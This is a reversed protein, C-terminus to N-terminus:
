FPVEEDSDPVGYGSASYGSGGAGGEADRKSGLLELRDVNIVPKNREEGTTRDTWRDLKFSGTIGLLSGKRVYDAAVQAQKGWIELPFWDPKDDRSRRNVALTFKAVMSGKEFYNAEPDRGARGVLTVRNTGPLNVPASVADFKEVQFELPHGKEIRFRGSLIWYSGSRINAAARDAAAGWVTAAIDMPPDEHKYAAVQATFAATQTDGSKSLTPPAEIYALLTILQM